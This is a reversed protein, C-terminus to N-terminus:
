DFVIVKVTLDDRYTRSIPEPIALIRGVAEYDGGLVNRLLMSALNGGKEGVFWQREKSGRASWPSDPKHEEDALVSSALEDSSVTYAATSDLSRGVLAVIQENTLQDYVGDSGLVLFRRGKPKLDITCVDPEATVYPPTKYDSYVKQASTPAFLKGTQAIEEATWKFRADGFARSIGLGLTRGNKNVDPEGPHEKEIREKEKPNFSTHDDTLVRTRWKKEAEDWEGLVARSDGAHAVNLEKKKADVVALLACSGATAVVLARLAELQAQSLRPDWCVPPPNPWTPLLQLPPTILSKDFSIFSDILVKSLPTSTPLHSLIHPVLATSLLNSTHWGSLGGSHGDFVGFFLLAPNASKHPFTATLSYDECPLNSPMYNTDCRAIIGNWSVSSERKKLQQEVESPSLITSTTRLVYSDDRPDLNQVSQISSIAFPAEDISQSKKGPKSRGFLLSGFLVVGVAGSGLVFPNSLLPSKNLPYFASSSARRRNPARFTSSNFVSRSKTKLANRLM